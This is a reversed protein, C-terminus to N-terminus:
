GKGKGQQALLQGAISLYVPPFTFLITRKKPETLLEYATPPDFIPIEGSRRGPGLETMGEEHLQDWYSKDPELSIEVIAEPVLVKDTRHRLTVFHPRPKDKSDSPHTDTPDSGPTDSYLSLRGQRFRAQGLYMEEVFPYAILFISTFHYIGIPRGNEVAEAPFRAYDRMMRLLYGLGEQPNSRHVEAMRKQLRESVWQQMVAPDQNHRVQKYDPFEKEIQLYLGLSVRRSIDQAFQHLKLVEHM